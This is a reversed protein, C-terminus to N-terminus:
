FLHEANQLTTNLDRSSGLVAPVQLTPNYQGRAWVGACVWDQFHYSTMLFPLLKSSSNNTYALPYSVLFPFVLIHGCGPLSPTAPAWPRRGPAPPTKNWSPPPPPYCKGSCTPPVKLAETGTLTVRALVSGSAGM